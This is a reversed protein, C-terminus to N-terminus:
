AVKRQTLFIVDQWLALYSINKENVIDYSQWTM